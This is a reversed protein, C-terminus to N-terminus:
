ELERRGQGRVGDGDNLSMTNIDVIIEHSDQQTDNLSMKNFDFAVKQADQQHQFMLDDPFVIHCPRRTRRLKKEEQKERWSLMKNIKMLQKQENSSPLFPDSAYVEPNEKRFHKEQEFRLRFLLSDVCYICFFPRETAASVGIGCCNAGCPQPTATEAVHLCSLLHFNSSNNPCRTEHIVLRKPVRPVKPVEAEVIRM